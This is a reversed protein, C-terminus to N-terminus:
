SHLILSTRNIEIFNYAAFAAVIHRINSLLLLELQTNKINGTSILLLKYPRQYLLFSTVFDEDKTVVIRQERVSLDNIVADPTRNGRPLDRTHIADYGVERLRDVLRRPLHADVLFNM